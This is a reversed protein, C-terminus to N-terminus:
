ELKAAVVNFSFPASGESTNEDPTEGGLETEAGSEQATVRLAPNDWVVRFRWMQLLDFLEGPALHKAPGFEILAEGKFFDFSVRQISANMTEWETRGGILNLTRECGFIPMTESQSPGYKIIHKGEYQLTALSNYIQQALGTPPDEASEFHATTKYTKEGVPSNTLKVRVNVEHPEAKGSEVKTRWRGLADKEKYTFKASVTVQKASVPTSDDLAMWSPMIEGRIHENPLTVTVGDEDKVTASGEVLALDFYNKMAPKKSKWWDLSTAAFAKAEVVVSTTTRMGGRLDIPCVLAGVELGTSGVPYADVVFTTYASNDVQNVAQYQIVVCPVQLDPRPTVFTSGHDGEGYDMAIPTLSGRLRCNLTPPVTSYNMHVVADPASRLAINIAESCMIAKVPYVPLNFAVDITGTGISVGCAAAFATLDAVQQGNTILAGPIYTVGGLTRESYNQFLNVRAFWGDSLANSYKWQQQYVLNELDWWADGFVWSQGPRDVDANSQASMRRGQFVISGGSWVGGSIARGRRIIVAGRFPIAPTPMATGPLRVAFTSVAQNQLVMEPDTFGWDVFSKEEGNYECTWM